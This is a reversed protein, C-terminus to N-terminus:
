GAFREWIGSGIVTCAPVLCIVTFAILCFVFFWQASSWQIKFATKEFLTQLQPTDTEEALWGYNLEVERGSAVAIKTIRFIEAGRRTKYTRYLRTVEQLPFSETKDVTHTDEVIVRQNTIAVVRRRSGKRSKHPADPDPWTIQPPYLFTEGEGLVTVSLPVAQRQEALRQENNM